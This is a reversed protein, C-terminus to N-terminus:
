RRAANLEGAQAILERLEEDEPLGRDQAIALLTDYNLDEVWPSERLLEAFAAASFATHLDSSAEGYSSAMAGTSLETIWEEAPGEGDGPRARIRVAALDGQAPERALALQYLATVEHGPGIEGADV